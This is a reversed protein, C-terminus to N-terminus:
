EKNREDANTLTIFFFVQRDNEKSGAKGQFVTTSGHCVSVNIAADQHNVLPAGIPLHQRDSRDDRELLERRVLELCMRVRDGDISPTVSIRTMPGEISKVKYQDDKERDIYHMMNGGTTLVTKLDYQLISSMRALKNAGIDISNLKNEIPLMDNASIFAVVEFPKSNTINGDFCGFFLNSVSSSEVEVVSVDARICPAATPTTALADVVLLLSVLIAMLGSINPPKM